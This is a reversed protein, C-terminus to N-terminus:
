APVRRVMTRHPGVDPVDFEGSVVRWGLREYFAVATSRAHCWLLSVGTEAQLARVAFGLLARGIGARAVDPRTAMGRLQYAAEGQWPRREFSACALVEGTDAAFAGFHRTAVDGDGPFRATAPPRGARLVAHRLPFIEELAAPRLGIRRGAAEVQARGDVMGGGEGGRRPMGAREARRTRGAGGRRAVADAVRTQISWAGVKRRYDAPETTTTLRLVRGPSTCM